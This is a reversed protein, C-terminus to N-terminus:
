LLDVLTSFGAAIRQRGEDTIMAVLRGSQPTWHNFVRNNREKWVLWCTLVQITLRKLISTKTQNSQNM